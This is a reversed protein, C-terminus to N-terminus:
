NRSSQITVSFTRQTFNLVREYRNTCKPMLLRNRKTRLQFGNTTVM